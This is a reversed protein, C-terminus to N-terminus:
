QFKTADSVEHSFIDVDMRKLPEADILYIFPQDERVVNIGLQELSKGTVESLAQAMLVNLSTTQDNIGVSGGPYKVAFLISYTERLDRELRNTIHASPKYIYMDTGHDGHVIITAKDYLDQNQLTKFLTNLEHLACKAQTVYRKYRIARSEPVNGVWGLNHSFREWTETEYDLSCDQRHVFPAHPLLVHAFYVRNPENQVDKALDILLQNDYISVGWSGEINQKRLIKTVLTSQGILTRVILVVRMQLDNLDSNITKLNPSTFVNCRDVVSPTVNCFDVSESQYVGIPYGMKALEQFWANESFSIGERLAFVRKAINEDDNRFNLARSMSNTTGAYHSYARSYVRFDHDRFFELVYERLDQSEGNQPLGDPGIFGDLLIHVIPGRPPQLMSNELEPSNRTRDLLNDAYLGIILAVMVAILAIPLKERFLVACILGFMVIVCLGIFFLNFHFLFALTLVCVLVLNVVMPRCYNNLLLSLFGALFAAGILLFFVEISFVPYEHHWLIGLLPYIIVLFLSFALQGFGTLNVRSTPERLVENKVNKSNM